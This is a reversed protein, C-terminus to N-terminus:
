FYFALFFNVINIWNSQCGKQIFELWTDYRLVSLYQIDNLCLHVSIDQGNLTIDPVQRRVSLAASSFDPSPSYLDTLSLSSIHM